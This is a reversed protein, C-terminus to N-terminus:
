RLVQPPAEIYLLRKARRAIKKWDHKMSIIVEQLMQTYEPRWYQTITNEDVQVWKKKKTKRIPKKLVPKTSEPEFTESTGFVDDLESELTNTQPLECYL